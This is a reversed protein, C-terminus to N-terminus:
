ITLHASALHRPVQEKATQVSEPDYRGATLLFHRVGVGCSAVEVPLQGAVTPLASPLALPLGPVSVIACARMNVPHERTETRTWLWCTKQQVPLRYQGRRRRCKRSLIRSRWEYSAWHVFCLQTLVQQSRVSWAQRCPCPPSRARQTAAWALSNCGTMFIAEREALM